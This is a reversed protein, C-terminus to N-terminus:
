LDFKKKIKESRLKDLRSDFVLSPVVSSNLNDDIGVFILFAEAAKILDKNTAEIFAEAYIYISSKGVHFIETKIKVKDDLLIKEFFNIQKTNDF